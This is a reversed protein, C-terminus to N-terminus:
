HGPSVQRSLFLLNGRTPNLEPRVPSATTRGVEDVAERYAQRSYQNKMLRRADDYTFEEAEGLVSALIADGIV